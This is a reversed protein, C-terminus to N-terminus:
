GLSTALAPAVSKGPMFRAPLFALLAGALGFAPATMLLAHRLASADGISGAIADSVAGVILPGFASGVMTTIIMYVLTSLGHMSSPLIDIALSLTPPTRAVAFCLVVVGGAMAVTKSVDLCTVAMAPVSILCFAAPLIVLWRENGTRRTVAACVYGSALSAILMAVGLVTGIFIGVETYTMGYSRVLIVPYWAVFAFSAMGYVGHAILLYRYARNRYMVRLADPLAHSPGVPAPADDDRTAGRDPERITFRIILALAIGLAGFTILAARWGYHDTIIGILPSGVIGAAPLASHFIGVAQTRWGRSFYDGILSMAGPACAAEGAGLGARAIALQVFNAAAGTALTMLSWVAVAWALINRRIGRDLWRAVPIGLAVYSVVFAAGSFLGLQTDTLQLDTKIKQLVIGVSFRDINALVNVLWLVFLAYYAQRRSIERRPAQNMSTPM